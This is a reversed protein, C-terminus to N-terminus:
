SEQNGAHHQEAHAQQFHQPQQVTLGGKSASMPSPSKQRQDFEVRGRQQGSFRESQPSGPRQQADGQRGWHSLSDVRSPFPAHMQGAASAQQHSLGVAAPQSYSSPPQAEAHPQAQSQSSGRSPGVAADTLMSGSQEAPQQSPVARQQPREAAPTQSLDPATVLSISPARQARNPESDARLLDGSAARATSGDRSSGGSTIILRASPSAHMSRASTSDPKSSSSLTAYRSAEAKRASSRGFRDEPEYGHGIHAPLEGSGTTVQRCCHCYSQCHNQTM